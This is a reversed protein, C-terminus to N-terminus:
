KKQAVVIRPHQDLDRLTKLYALDAAANLMAVVDEHIMPSLEMLFHGKPKLFRPIQLLLRAILETGREGGFLAVHPEFRYVNQELETGLESQGVYPPNSVIFDFQEAPKLASLLDSRLLTVRGGIKDQYKKANLAAVELAEPSIDLATVQCNKMHVASTIALIGSGTGIDCLTRPANMGGLEKALDFLGVLLFETEPRPILVRKDVIFDLSYFEKKGVLYAVPCGAARQQILGRYAAKEEATPEQDFRMYLDVRSCKLAYALLVEADLRASDSGHTKLYDTTWTLLRLVTWLEAENSM